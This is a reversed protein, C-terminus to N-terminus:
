AWSLRYLKGPEAPRDALREPGHSAAIRREKRDFELEIVYTAVGTGVILLGVGAVAVAMAAVAAADALPAGTVFVEVSVATMGTFHLSVVAAVFSALSLVRQERVSAFLAGIGFVVALVLSAAVYALDWHVLGDVGYAMMGAYHMASISLGLVIGGVVISKGEGKSATAFAVAAGGIAILLSVMTLVPEFTVPAPSDYALMAIFHTCWVSAGTAVAALFTWGARQRGVRGRGRGFLRLGVWGGGLCVLAALAVLWLDHLVVVCSVVRMM